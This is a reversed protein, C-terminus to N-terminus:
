SPLSHARRVSTLLEIGLQWMRECQLSYHCYNKNQNKNKPIEKNKKNDKLKTKNIKFYSILIIIRLWRGYWM